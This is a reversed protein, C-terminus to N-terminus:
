ISLYFWPSYMISPADIAAKLAQARIWSSELLFGSFRLVFFSKGNIIFLIKNNDTKIEEKIGTKKM